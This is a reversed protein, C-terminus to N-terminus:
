KAALQEQLARLQKALEAVQKRLEPLQKVSAQIRHGELGPYAPSGFVTVGPTPINNPIGSQSGIKVGDAITIHGVVGVQGGMMVHSGVKTSGAIGVQAAMVTNEGIVVNHAVQILNDLKAGRRIRTSGMTARDISCNSGIEVDEEIVVNGIQPIKQFSGDETPAFGFGDGGIVTGGHVTVRDGIVCEEYVKVGPYLKTGAGVRVRDGVYVQPWIETGDGVTAGEGVVAYEGIYVDTGVTASPHVFALPSIGTKKPKNAVYLDLLSAFAKYANDVRVLTLGEPLPHQAKFDRNVIAITAGTRYIHEEYKPNSLFVLDGAGAEEIKAVSNVAAEKNGEVAGGLYGAIIEATFQM